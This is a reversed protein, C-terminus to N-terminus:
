LEDLISELIEDQSIIQGIVERKRKVLTNMKEDITGKVVLYYATVNQKQGIRHLRAEAQEERAPTWLRECFIIDSAAYLNLGEAGAETIIMVQISDKAM